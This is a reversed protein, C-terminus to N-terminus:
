SGRSNLHKIKEYLKLRIDFTEKSLNRERKSFTERFQIAIQCREKKIILFEYIDSLFKLIDPRNVEWIYQKKWNTRIVRSPSNMESFRGGFNEYLWEVLCKDTSSVNVRLNFQGRRKPDINSKWIMISGEGDIIGALYALKERHNM